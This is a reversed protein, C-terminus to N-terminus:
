QKLLSLPSLPPTPLSPFGILPLSFGQILHGGVPAWSSSTDAQLPDATTCTPADHSLSPSSNKMGLSLDPGM